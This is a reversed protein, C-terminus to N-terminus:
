QADNEAKQELAKGIRYSDVIGAIWCITLVIMSFTMTSDSGSSSEAVMESLSSATAPVQGSYIKDVVAMAREGAVAAIFYMAGLSTAVLLAARTYSKVTVHGLGPFILGSLLVAKTSLRMRASYVKGFPRLAMERM